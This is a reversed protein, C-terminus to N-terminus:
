DGGPRLFMFFRSLGVDYRAMHTLFSFKKVFKPNKAYYTGYKAYILIIKKKLIALTGPCIKEFLCPARAGPGPGWFPAHTGARDWPVLCMKQAWPGPGPGRAEKSFYLGLCRPKKSFTFLISNSSIQASCICIAGWLPYAARTYPIPIRNIGRLPIPFFSGLQM